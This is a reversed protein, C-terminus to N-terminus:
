LTNASCRNAIQSVSTRSQAATIAHQESVEARWDLAKTFAPLSRPDQMELLLNLCGILRQFAFSERPDRSLITRYRRILVETRRAAPDGQPETGENM